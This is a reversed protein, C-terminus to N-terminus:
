YFVVPATRSIEFARTTIARVPMSRAGKIHMEQYADWTRVDIIDARAGQDLLAKLEDVKIFRAPADPPAAPAAGLLLVGGAVLTILLRRV